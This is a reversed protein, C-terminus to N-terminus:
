GLQKEYRNIYIASSNRQYLLHSFDIEKKKIKGLKM